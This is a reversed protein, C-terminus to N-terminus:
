KIVPTVYVNIKISMQGTGQKISILGQFGQGDQIGIMQLIVIANCAFNAIQLGVNNFMLHGNIFFQHM